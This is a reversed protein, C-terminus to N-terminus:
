SRHMQLCTLIRRPITIEVGFAGTEKLWPISPESALLRRLTAVSAVADEGLGLLDRVVREDLEIRALDVACRYFPQFTRDRFDRWIALVEGLQWSELRRVDLTVLSESGM